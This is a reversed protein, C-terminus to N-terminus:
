LDSGGDVAAWGLDDRLDEFCKCCVWAYERGHKYAETTTYGEHQIEPEAASELEAFKATCASCHDHDWNKSPQKYRQFRLKEGRLHLGVLDIRWQKDDIKGM